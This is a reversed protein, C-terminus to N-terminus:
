APRRRRESTTRSAQAIGILTPVLPLRGVWSRKDLFLRKSRAPDSAACRPRFWGHVDTQLPELQSPQGPNGCANEAPDKDWAKTVRM